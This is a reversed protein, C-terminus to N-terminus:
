SCKALKKRIQVGKTYKNTRKLNTKIISVHKQHIQENVFCIRASFKM